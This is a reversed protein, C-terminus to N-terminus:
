LVAEKIKNNFRRLESLSKTLSATWQEAEIPDLDDLDVLPLALLVGELTNVTERVIRASDARRVRGVSDAPFNIRYDKAIDNVAGRGIGLHRAVQDRHHGEAAMEAIIEARQDRTQPSAQQKIKRVVNARSLNGEERAEALADEFDSEEVGDTMAIIQARTEDGGYLAKTTGISIPERHGDAWGGRNPLTGSEQASRHARRLAYEARRIMEVADEQIEKSLGLQKTAEAVTSLEAKIAAVAQPGTATLADTLRDRAQTLYSTVAVEAQAAPLNRMQSVPVLASM